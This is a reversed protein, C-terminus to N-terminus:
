YIYLFFISLSLSLSGGSSYRNHVYFLVSVPLPLTLTSCMNPSYFGLKKVVVSFEVPLATGITPIKINYSTTRFSSCGRAHQFTEPTQPRNLIYKITMKSSWM